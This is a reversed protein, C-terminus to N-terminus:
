GMKSGEVCALLKWFFASDRTVRSASCTDRWTALVRAMLKKLVLFVGLHRGGAASYIPAGGLLLPQPPHLAVRSALVGPAGPMSVLESADALAQGHCPSEDPKPPFHSNREDSRLNLRRIQTPSVITPLSRKKNTLSATLTERLSM